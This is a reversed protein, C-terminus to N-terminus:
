GDDVRFSLLRLGKPVDRLTVGQFSDVVTFGGNEGPKQNEYTVAICVTLMPSDMLPLVMREDQSDNSELLKLLDSRIRLGEKDEDFRVLLPQQAGKDDVVRSLVHSNFIFTEKLSKKDKSAQAM